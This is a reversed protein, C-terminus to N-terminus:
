SIVFIGQTPPPELKSRSSWPRLAMRKKYAKGGFKVQDDMEDDSSDSESGSSDSDSDSTSDEEDSSSSSDSMDNAACNLAIHTYECAFCRGKKGKKNNKATKKKQGGSPKKSSKVKSSPKAQKRDANSGSSL